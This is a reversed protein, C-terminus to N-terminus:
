PRGPTRFENDYCKRFPTEGSVVDIDNQDMCAIACSSCACCKDPNFSIIHKM